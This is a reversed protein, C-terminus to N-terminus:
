RAAWAMLVQAAYYAPLGRARNVFARAVFRDRAVSLDSVYFLAIQICSSQLKVYPL